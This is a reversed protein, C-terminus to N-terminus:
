AARSPNILGFAREAVVRSRGIVPDDPPLGLELAEASLTRMLAAIPAAAGSAELLPILRDVYHTALFTERAWARAATALEVGANPHNFLLAIHASLAPVEDGAPVRFVFDDPLNAFSGTDPVLVPRGSLLGLIASASAGETVPWRLCCLADVDAVASRMDDLSLWGSFSIAVGAADAQAQLEAQREPTAHGLVRYVVGARLQPMTGIAEIIAHHRKNINADGLTAVTMKERPKRRRPPPVNLDSFALPLVGVPGLCHRRVADAYFQAHVVAGTARAAFWSLLRAGDSAAPPVEDAFAASAWGWHFGSMDADHLVVMGPAQSLLRPVEAHHGFHNGLAYVIVDHQQALDNPSIDRGVVVRGPAQLAPLALPAELSPLASEARVVTVAHGRRDLELAILRAWTSIASRTNYPTVLAIRM